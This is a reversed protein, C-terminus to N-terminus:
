SCVALNKYPQATPAEISLTSQSVSQRADPVIKSGSFYTTNESRLLNFKEKM